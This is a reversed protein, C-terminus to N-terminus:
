SPLTLTAPDKLITGKFDGIVVIVLAKVVAVVLLFLMDMCTYVDKSMDRVKFNGFYYSWLVM